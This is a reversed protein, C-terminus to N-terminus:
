SPGSAGSTRSSCWVTELSSGKGAAVLERHRREARVGPRATLFFKFPTRPFVVTGIDRGEVVAGLGEAPPDGPTM